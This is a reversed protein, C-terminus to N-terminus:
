VFPRSGSEDIASSTDDRRARRTFTSHAHPKPSSQRCLLHYTYHCGLRIPDDISPLILFPLHVFPCWRSRDLYLFTYALRPILSYGQGFNSTSFSNRGVLVGASHIFYLSKLNSWVGEYSIWRLLTSCKHTRVYGM